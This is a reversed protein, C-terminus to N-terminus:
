RSAAEAVQPADFVFLAADQLSTKALLRETTPALLDGPEVAADHIM